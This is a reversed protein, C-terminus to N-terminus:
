AARQLLLAMCGTARIEGGTRWGDGRLKLLLASPRQLTTQLYWIRRYRTLNRAWARDQVGGEAAFSPVVFVDPQTSLVSFGSMWASGLVIRPQAEVSLAWDYRLFADVVVHDGPRLQQEVRHALAGVDVSNYRNDVGAGGLVLSLVAIIAVGHSASRVWVSDRCRAKVWHSLQQLGSGFLLILEPYLVEDTRGTGLPIVGAACLALAAGLALTPALLPRQRAAGLVLLATGLGFTALYGTMTGSHGGTLGGYVSVTLSSISNVLV